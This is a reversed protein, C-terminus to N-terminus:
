RLLLGPQELAKVVDRLFGAAVTGDIIRHGAALTMTMM